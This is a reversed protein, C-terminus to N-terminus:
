DSSPLQKAEKLTVARGDVALLGKSAKSCLLELGTIEDIYRKGIQAAGPEAAALAAASLSAESVGVMPVGGCTLEVDQSPARVAVVQGECVSSKYRLGAKLRM